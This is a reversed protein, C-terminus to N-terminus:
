RTRPGCAIRKSTGSSGTQAVAEFSEVPPEFAPQGNRIRALATQAQKRAEDISLTDAAGVTAWEQKRTVPNRAIVAYTKTGSPQVRIYHGRLVPDPHHYTKARPQLKAAAKDTLTKRV